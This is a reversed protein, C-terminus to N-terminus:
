LGSRRPLYKLEYYLVWHYKDFRKERSGDAEASIGPITIGPIIIGPFLEPEPVMLGDVVLRPLVGAQLTLEHGFPVPLVERLKRIFPMGLLKNRKACLVRFFRRIPSKKGQLSSLPKLRLSAPHDHNEHRKEVFFAM